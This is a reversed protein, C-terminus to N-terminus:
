PVFIHDGDQLFINQELKKGKIVDDYNFKIRETGRMIIIKSKKAWQGLGASSLAQLITTPTVLPVAGSQGVNGSLFYRKSQVSTVSVNVEPKTLIKSYAEAVRVALAEPTLGAAEVEGALLLTIKGDPRVVVNSSMEPERWIRIALGDRAGIVYTKPDVPAAVPVTALDDKKADAPPNAAQGRNAQASQSAPAQGPTPEAAAVTSLLNAVALLAGFRSLRGLRM